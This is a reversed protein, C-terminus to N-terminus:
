QCSPLPDSCTPLLPPFHCSAPGAHPCVPGSLSSDLFLPLLRRLRCASSSCRTRDTPSSWAIPTACLASTTSPAAVRSFHPSSTSTALPNMGVTSAKGLTATELRRLTDRSAPCERSRRSQYRPLGRFLRYAVAKAPRPRRHRDSDQRAAQVARCGFEFDPDESEDPLDADVARKTKTDCAFRRGSRLPSPPSHRSLSLPVLRSASAGAVRASIRSSSTSTAAEWSVRQHRAALVDPTPPRVSPAAGANAVTRRRDDNRPAIVAFHRMLRRFSTGHCDSFM